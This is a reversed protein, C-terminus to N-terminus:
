MNVGIFAHRRAARGIIAARAACSWPFAGRRHAAGKRQRSIMMALVGTAPRTLVRSAAPGADGGGNAEDAMFQM